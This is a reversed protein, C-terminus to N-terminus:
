RKWCNTSTNIYSEVIGLIILGNSRGHIEKATASMIEKNKVIPILFVAIPFDINYPIDPVHKLIKDSVSMYVAVTTCFNFFLARLAAKPLLM